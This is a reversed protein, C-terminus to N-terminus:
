ALAAALAAAARRGQRICAPIGLGEIGAGALEVRPAAEALRARWRAVRDLHGPEFQPLAGPWRVVECREPAGRLGM